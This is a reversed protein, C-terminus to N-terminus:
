RKKHEELKSLMIIQYFEELLAYIFGKKGDLFGKKLIYMQFFAYFPRWFLSYVGFKENKRKEIED